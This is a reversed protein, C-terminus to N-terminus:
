ENNNSQDLIIGAGDRCYYYSASILEGGACTMMCPVPSSPEKGQGYRERNNDKERWWVSSVSWNNIRRRRASLASRYCPVALFSFLFVSFYHFIGRSFKMLPHSPPGGM